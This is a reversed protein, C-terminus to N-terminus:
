INLPLQLIGNSASPEDKDDVVLCGPSKAIWQRVFHRAAYYERYTLHIFHFTHEEDESPPNSIRLFSTRLLRPNVLPDDVSGSIEVRDRGGFM